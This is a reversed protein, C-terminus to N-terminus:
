EWRGGLKVRFFLFKYVNWYIILMLFSENFLKEYFKNSFFSLALTGFLYAYSIRSIVVDRAYVKYKLKEYAVQSIVAMLAVLIILGTYGFDYIYPHFTTPVNGLNYGNVFHFPQDLQYYWNDIGVFPGIFRIVHIFTQSGWISNHNYPNQLYYDLNVVCGGCYEALYDALRLNSERGVLRGFQQLSFVIVAAIVLLQFLRKFGISGFRGKQKYYCFVYFVVYCILLDIIGGRGGGLIQSVISLGVAIYARINNSVKCVVLNYIIIYGFWYGGAKVFTNILGLWTPIGQIGGETYLAKRYQMLSIMLNSYSGGIIRLKMYVTLLIAFSEIIIVLDIKWNDIQRILTSDELIIPKKKVRRYLISVISCVFVFELVGGTIVMFTNQHIEFSWNGAYAAVWISSFFFSLSFAFAPSIVERKNIGYSLLTISLLIAMMLNIM